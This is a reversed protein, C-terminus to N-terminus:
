RDRDIEKRLDEKFRNDKENRDIRRTKSQAKEDRIASRDKSIDRKRERSEGVVKKGLAPDERRKPVKRDTAATKELEEGSSDDLTIVDSVTPKGTASEATNSKLKRRKEANEETDSESLINGLCAQLLAKQKMLDELNLEDEIVAVDPSDVDNVAVESESDSSMIEMSPIPADPKLSETIKRVLETPNTLSVTRSKTIIKPAAVQGNSKMIETFKSSLSTTSPKTILVVEEDQSAAASTISSESARRSKRKHKKHKKAKDKDKDVASRDRQESKSSKKHKKHKKHKKKKGLDVDKSRKVLM